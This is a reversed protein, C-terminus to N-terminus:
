CEDSSRMRPDGYLFNLCLWCYHVVVAGKALSEMYTLDGDPTSWNVAIAYVGVVFTRWWYWRKCGAGHALTAIWFWLFLFALVWRWTLM